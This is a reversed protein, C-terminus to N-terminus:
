WCVELPFNDAVPDPTMEWSFQRSFFNTILLLCQVPGETLHKSSGVKVCTTKSQGLSWKEAIRFAEWFEEQKAWQFCVAHLSKHLTCLTPSIATWGPAPCPWSLDPYPKTATSSLKWHKCQPQAQESGSPLSPKYRNIQLNKILLSYM